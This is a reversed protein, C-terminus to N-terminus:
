KLVFTVTERAVSRDTEPTFCRSVMAFNNKELVRISPHNHGAATAYLPRPAFESLLLAVARSAIGRGWQERAIWYGLSALGDQPFISVSGVVVGHFLIVRPTVRTVTGDPDALIEAWRAQFAPWDRPKTGALENSSPDVGFAYLMPIDTAITQRLVIEISTHASM